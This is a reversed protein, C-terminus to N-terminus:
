SQVAEFIERLDPRLEVMPIGTMDSIRKALVISPKRSGNEIKSLHAKTTGLVAAMDALSQGFAKRYATIQHKEM